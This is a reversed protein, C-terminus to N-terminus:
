STLTQNLNTRFILDKIYCDYYRRKHLMLLLANEKRKMLKNLKYEQIIDYIKRKLSLYLHRSVATRMVNAISLHSEQLSLSSM